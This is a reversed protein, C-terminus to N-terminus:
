ESPLAPRIHQGLGGEFYARRRIAESTKMRSVPRLDTAAPGQFINGFEGPAPNM